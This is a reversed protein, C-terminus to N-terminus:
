IAERQESVVEGKQTSVITKDCMIKAGCHPCHTPFDKPTGNLGFEKYVDVMSIGPNFKLIAEDCKPCTIVVCQIKRTEQTMGNVVMTAVEEEVYDFKVQQAFEFDNINM